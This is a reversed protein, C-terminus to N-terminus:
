NASLLRNSQRSSFASDCFCQIVFYRGTHCNKSLAYNLLFINRFYELFMKAESVHKKCITWALLCPFMFTTKVYYTKENLALGYHDNRFDELQGWGYFLLYLNPIPGKTCIDFEHVRCASQLDLSSGHLHPCTLVLLSLPRKVQQSSTARSRVSQLTIGIM